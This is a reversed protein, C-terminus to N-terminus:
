KKITYTLTKTGSYNGLMVVKVKYTGVKKMGAPYVVKYHVGKTLVTGNANKVVVAPTKVKGNYTTTAKKFAIKCTSVSIPNIKYTLTKEGSYNGLMVVKVKYTGVKKMGAPYVVKYHTGLKLTTGNANKVVVAPTKVKGNYTTTAKKFAIKCTSVSIPNIKYTLTKTGSYNGLMVVKVKYTGANKMGTPYVVKYHTGLKLTTGNANKVVVTPKKVKGDYTTTAKKFAIKCTSVSIPNIKYTLTKEGSYNGKLTVKVKYTGAKKMGTPYTVTYDTGLKLTKGSADKVVVTPKKTTGDYTTTAKKFAISTVKAITTNSAVNGCVTCKKVVGGSASLTAKTTTTKYSHGLAKGSTAGCAVCTKAATCTAAQWEHGLAEGETAGCVTCIKAATCTAEDWIHGCVHPIFPIDNEEAFAQVYSGEYSYLTLASCLSFTSAEIHTMQGAITVRELSACDFFAADGLSTVSYPIIVDTLSCEMFAYLEVFMTGLPIAYSDGAKASPYRLLRTRDESFLVGDIACYSTNDEAVSIHELKECDHFASDGIRSVKEPIDIAKLNYCGNFAYKGIEIVSEPIHVANLLTCSSFAEKNIVTVGDPITYETQQKAPPYCVLQTGDKTFLVGDVSSFMPNGDGVLIERLTYAGSFVGVGFSLLSDPLTVTALFNCGLFAMDAISVVGNGIRVEALANCDLFASEGIAAITDPITIKRLTDCNAFAWRNIATVPCGNVAAPLVVESYAGNYGDIRLTGNDRTMTFCHSDAEGCVYCVNSQTYKHGRAAGQTAGCVSCIMPSVCTPPAFAHGDVACNAQTYGPMNENGSAALDIFADVDTTFGIQDVVVSADIYYIFELYVSALDYCTGYYTYPTGFDYKWTGEAPLPLVMWGKTGVPLTLTFNTTPKRASVVGDIVTYYTYGTSMTIGSGEATYPIFSMASDATFVSATVDYWFVLAKQEATGKQDFDITIAAREETRFFQLATGFGNGNGVLNYCDAPSAHLVDAGSSFDQAATYLIQGCTVCVGDTYTHTHIIDPSQASVPVGGLPVCTLLLALTLLVSLIRNKM